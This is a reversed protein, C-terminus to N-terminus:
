SREIQVATAMNNGIVTSAAATWEDTNLTETWSHPMLDLIDQMADNSFWEIHYEEIPHAREANITIEFHKALINVIQYRIVMAEIKRDDSLASTDFIQDATATAWDRPDHQKDNTVLIIPQGIQASSFNSKM